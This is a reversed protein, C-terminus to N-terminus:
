DVSSSLAMPAAEFDVYAERRERGREVWAAGIFLRRKKEV